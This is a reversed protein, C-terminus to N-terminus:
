KMKRCLLFDDDWVTDCVMDKSTVNIKIIPALPLTIKINGHRARYGQELGINFGREFGRRHGFDYCFWIILGWMLIKGLWESLEIEKEAM